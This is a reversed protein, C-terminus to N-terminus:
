HVSRGGDVVMLYKQRNSDLWTTVDEMAQRAKAEAAEMAEAFTSFLLTQGKVEDKLIYEAELVGMSYACISALYMQLAEHFYVAPMVSIDPTRTM